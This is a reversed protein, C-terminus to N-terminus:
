IKFINKSIEAVVVDDIFSCFSITNAIKTFEIIKLKRGVSDDHGWKRLTRV